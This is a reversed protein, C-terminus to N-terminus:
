FISKTHYTCLAQSYLILFMNYTTNRQTQLYLLQCTTLKNLETHPMMIVNIHQQLLLTFQLIQDDQMFSNFLSCQFLSFQVSYSQIIIQVQTQLVKLLSLIILDVTPQCSCLHHWLRGHIYLERGQQDFIFFAM